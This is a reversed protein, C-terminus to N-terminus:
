RMMTMKKMMIMKIEDDDEDTTVVIMMLIGVNVADIIMWLLHCLFVYDTQVQRQVFTRVHAMVVIMMMM